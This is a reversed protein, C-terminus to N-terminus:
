VMWAHGLDFGKHNYLQLLLYIWPILDSLTGSSSHVSTWSLTCSATILVIELFFFHFFAFHNELSAKCIASFLFSALPLSSFFLYVWGFASNWPIALLSLFAKRLAQKPLVYVLIPVICLLNAHGKLSSSVCIQSINWLKIWTSAHCFGGCIPFYNAEL